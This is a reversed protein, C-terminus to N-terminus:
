YKYLKDTRQSTAPRLLGMDRVQIIKKGINMVRQHQFNRPCGAKKNNLLRPLDGHNGDAAPPM